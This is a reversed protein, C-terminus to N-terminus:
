VVLYCTFLSLLDHVSAFFSTITVMSAFHQFWIRSSLGYLSRRIHCVIGEPISHGHLLCM